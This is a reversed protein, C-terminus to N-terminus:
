GKGSNPMRALLAKVLNHAEDGCRCIHATGVSGDGDLRFPCTASMCGQVVVALRTAYHICRDRDRQKV